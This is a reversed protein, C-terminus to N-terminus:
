MQIHMQGCGSTGRRPGLSGTAQDGGPCAETSTVKADGPLSEPWVPSISILFSPLRKRRKRELGCQTVGRVPDGSGLQVGALAGLPRCIRGQKVGSRDESGPTQSVISNISDPHLSLAVIRSPGQGSAPLFLLVGGKRGLGKV